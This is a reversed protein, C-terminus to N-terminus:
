LSLFSGVEEPIFVSKVSTNRKHLLRDDAEHVTRRTRIPAGLGTCEFKSLTVGKATPPPTPRDTCAGKRIAVSFVTNAIGSTLSIGECLLFHGMAIQFVQQCSPRRWVYVSM